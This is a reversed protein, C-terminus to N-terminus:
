RSGELIPGLNAPSYSPSKIVKGDARRVIFDGGRICTVSVPKGDVEFVPQETDGTQIMEVDSVMWAKSMNSRHVEAFGAELQEATIGAAAAAGHVVYLLDLVADFYDTLTKACFLEWAEEKILAFRMAMTESDPLAAREPVRQGFARMFERVMEHETKM